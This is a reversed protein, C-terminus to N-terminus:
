EERGMLRRYIKMLRKYGPSLNPPDPLEEARSMQPPGPPQNGGPPKIETTGEPTLPRTQPTLITRAKVIASMLQPYPANNVALKAVDTLAAALEIDKETMQQAAANLGSAAQGITKDLEERTKEDTVRQRVGALQEITDLMGAIRDKDVGATEQTGEKTPEGISVTVPEGSAEQLRFPCNDLAVPTLVLTGKKEPMFELPVAGIYVGEDQGPELRLKPFSKEVPKEGATDTMTVSLWVGEVKYDDYAQVRVPIPAGPMFSTGERPSTIRTEPPRDNKVAVPKRPREESTFGDSDKFSITYTTVAKSMTFTLVLGGAITNMPLEEDDLYLVGNAATRDTFATVEVKSGEIIVPEEGMEYTQRGTYAPPYITFRVSTVRAPDLARVLFEESKTKGPIEFFYVATRDLPPSVAMYRESETSQAATRIEDAGTNLVLEIKEPEGGRVVCSSEFHDGRRINVNGPRVDEITLQTPAPVGRGPFVLRVVAREFRHGAFAWWLVTGLMLVSLLAGPRKLAGLSIEVAAEKAAVKEAQSSIFKLMPSAQDAASAMEAATALRGKMTPLLTEVHLAWRAPGLPRFRILLIGATVVAAGLAIIDRASYRYAKSLVIFWDATIALLGATFVVVAAMEVALILGIVRYQRLLERM